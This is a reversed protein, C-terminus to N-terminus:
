APREPVLEPAECWRGQVLRRSASTPDGRSSGKKVSLTHLPTSYCSKLRYVVESEARPVGHICRQEGPSPWPFSAAHAPAAAQRPVLAGALM